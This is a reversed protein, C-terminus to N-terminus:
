LCCPHHLWYAWKHTGKSNTGRQSANPIGWSPLPSTFFRSVYPWKQKTGRVSANPVGWLRCAHHLWHTCTHAPWKQAHEGSHLTLSGWSPMPTTALRGVHAGRRSKGGSHLTPSGASPLPSTALGLTIYGIHGRTPWHHNPERREVRPSGGLRRPHPLWNAWTHPAESKTGRVWANPVGWSPLPSTVLIGPQPGSSIKIQHELRLPGQFVALTIHGIHGCTPWKQNWGASHPTPSRGFPLPATALRGVHPGITIQNGGRM